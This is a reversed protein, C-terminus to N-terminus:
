TRTQSRASTFNRRAVRCCRWVLGLAPIDARGWFAATDGCAACQREPGSGAM